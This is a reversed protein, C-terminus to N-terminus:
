GVDGVLAHRAADLDSRLTHLEALWGRVLRAETWREDGYRSAAVQEARRQLDDVVDFAQAVAAVVRDRDAMTVVGPLRVLQARTDVPLAHPLARAFAVFVGALDFRGADDLVQLLRRLRRVVATSGAIVEAADVMTRRFLLVQPLWSRAIGPAALEFARLLPPAVLAAFDIDDDDVETNDLQYLAALCSRRAWQTAVVEHVVGPLELQPLHHMAMALAVHDGVTVVDAKRVSLAQKVQQQERRALGEAAHAGSRRQQALPLVTTSMSWLWRPWLSLALSLGLPPESSQGAADASLAVPVIHSRGAHDVRVVDDAREAGNDVLFRLLGTATTRSLALALDASPADTTPPQQWRETRKQGCLCAAVLWTDADGAPLPALTPSYMVSM